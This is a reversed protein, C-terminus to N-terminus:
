FMQFHCIEHIIMSMISMLMFKNVNNWFLIKMMKPNFKKALSKEIIDHAVQAYFTLKKIM